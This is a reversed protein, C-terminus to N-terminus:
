ERAGVCNSPESEGGFAVTRRLTLSYGSTPCRGRLSVLVASLAKSRDRLLASAARTAAAKRVEVYMSERCWEYRRIFALNEPLMGHLM